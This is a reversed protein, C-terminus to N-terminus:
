LAEKLRKEYILLDHKRDGVRKAPVGAYVGFEEFNGKVLSLAGIAVGLGVDSGPLVVSGSGIIVHKGIYVPQSSVNTYESPVTPNTMYAGSYDDNSSYVTVRSSLNAYDAIGIRGAGILASYVAIHIFCGIEIGGAGASLVCFDDIRVHDGISIAAPNYISAKRSIRVNKGLAKFGLAQLEEPTYVSM